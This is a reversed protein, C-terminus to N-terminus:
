WPLDDGEDPIFPNELDAFPNTRNALDSASGDLDGSKPRKSIELKQTFNRAKAMNAAHNRRNM